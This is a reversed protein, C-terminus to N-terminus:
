CVPIYRVRQLASKRKEVVSDDRRGFLLVKSPFQQNALEALGKEVLRERLVTFDSFRKAIKWSVGDGECDVIYSVYEQKADDHHRETDAITVKVVRSLSRQEVTGWWV